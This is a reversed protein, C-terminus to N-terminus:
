AALPHSHGVGRELLDIIRQRYRVPSFEAARERAARGVRCRLDKDRMVLEITDKLGVVDGHEVQFGSIGHSFYDAAGAPETCIVVKGFAMAVVWTAMGTVRLPESLTPVVVCSAEAICRYYQEAPVAGLVRVHGPVEGFRHSSIIQVPWPLDSVADLFTRWDRAQNGGAFVYGADRIETHFQDNYIAPQWLFKSEPIRFQSSYRRIEERSFAFTAVSGECALRTIRGSGGRCETDTLVVPKTQGLWRLLIPIWIGCRGVAFGSYKRSNRLVKFAFQLEFWRQAYSRLVRPFRNVRTDVYEVEDWVDVDSRWEHTFRDTRTRTVLYRQM